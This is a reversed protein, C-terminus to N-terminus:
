KMKIRKLNHEYIGINPDKIKLGNQVAREYNAIAMNLEGNKEYAEGLSDYVNASKPFRITNEKFIDIANKYNEAALYNYGLKNIIFEPTSINYNYKKSIKKYHEDIAKLGKNFTKDELKWASYIFLLGNYISLHPVSTHDDPLMKIYEFNLGKPSKTEVISAFYDLANFFREENGVTMFYTTENAFKSKLKNEAERLLINNDYMLYPSISIYANFLEPNNLLTYTAFSGGLSHGMLINFSNIRYNREVFPFLEEKIFSSFKSAGGSGPRQPIHTPSFDKNRDTNVIAIVITEPILGASSLFQVIGSAHHFHTKGDLLYLVNYKTDTFNYSYPLFVLISREENLINSQFSIKEGISFSQSFSTFNISSSILIASLILINKM